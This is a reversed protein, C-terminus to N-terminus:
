LELRELAQDLLAPLRDLTSLPEARLHLRVARRGHAVLAELDGLAQAQKLQGFSYARGPISLDPADDRTIQLFLGTDPGGKYLQGISHLFRPGYGRLIPLGLRRRLLVRLGALRAEMEHNRDLYALIALYERAHALGLFGALFHVPDGCTHERLRSEEQMRAWTQEGAYLRFSDAEVRLDAEAESSYHEFSALIRATADKSEKVNPEDFANVELLAGLWATCMEWRVFEGGLDIRTPLVIEVCPEHHVRAQEFLRAADDSDEGALAMRVYVRDAGYEPLPGVTEGEVPIVGKGEKGTSEAVLQEIWPAFPALSPSCLFTLKDMGHEAALALLTAMSLAPNKATDTHRCAKIIADADELLPLLPVGLLAAPVLGFYSLASYRGGIDPPNLFLQRFGRERALTELASGADTIATFHRGAETGLAAECEHWFYDLQTRTEITGGSKSAVIFLTRPLALSRRLNLLTQPDTSDLVHLTLAEGELQGFQNPHFVQSFVEPALSSGGMGLLVATHQLDHHVGRVFKKIEDVKEMMLAPSDLWGLRNAIVQQHSSDRKWLSADREWLRAALRQGRARALSLRFPAALRGPSLTQQAIKM